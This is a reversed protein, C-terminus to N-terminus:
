VEEHCFLLGCSGFHLQPGYSAIHDPARRQPGSPNGPGVGRPGLGGRDTVGGLDLPRSNCSPAPFVSSPHLYVPIYVIGIEFHLFIILNKLWIHFYFPEIHKDSRQSPHFTWRLACGWWFFSTIFCLYKNSYRFSSSAFNLWILNRSFCKAIYLVAACQHRSHLTVDCARETSNDLKETEKHQHRSPPVNM